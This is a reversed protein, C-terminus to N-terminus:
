LLADLEAALQAYLEVYEEKKSLNEATEILLSVEKMRAELEQKRKIKEASALNTTPMSLGSDQKQFPSEIPPEPVFDNKILAVGPMTPKKPEEEHNLAKALIKGVLKEESIHQDESAKKLSELLEESIEINLQRLQM